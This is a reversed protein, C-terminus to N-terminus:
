RVFLAFINAHNLKIKSVEPPKAGKAHKIIAIHSTLLNIVNLLVEQENYKLMMSKLQVIWWKQRIM